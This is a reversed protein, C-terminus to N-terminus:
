LMKAIFLYIFCSYSTLAQKGSQHVQTYTTKLSNQYKRFINFCTYQLSIMFFINQLFNESFGTKDEVEMRNCKYITNCVMLLMLTFALM